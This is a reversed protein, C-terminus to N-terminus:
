NELGLDAIGKGALEVEMGWAKGFVRIVRVYTARKESTSRVLLDRITLTPELTSSLHKESLLGLSQRSALVRLPHVRSM